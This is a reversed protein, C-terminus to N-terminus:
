DRVKIGSDTHRHFGYNQDDCARKGRIATSAGARDDRRIGVLCCRMMRGPLLVLVVLVWPGPMVVTIAICLAVIAFHTEAFGFVIKKGANLCRVLGTVVRIVDLQRQGIERRGPQKRFKGVGYADRKAVM